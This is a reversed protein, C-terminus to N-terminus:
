NDRFTLYESHKDMRGKQVVEILPLTQDHEDILYNKDDPRHQSFKKNM